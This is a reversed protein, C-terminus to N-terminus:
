STLEEYIGDFLERIDDELSDIRGHLMTQLGAGDPLFCFVKAIQLDSMPSKIEGKKRAIGVIREWADMERRHYQFLSERFGSYRNLADFMMIYFNCNITQDDTSFWEKMKPILNRNYDLFQHYFERLSEDSFESFDTNIWSLLMDAIECFLQDKSSFYHYFAGKSMGSAQVIENMTVEKFSKHLFLMTATKLIHEKTNKMKEM